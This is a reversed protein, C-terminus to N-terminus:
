NQRRRKKTQVVSASTPQISTSQWEMGSSSSPASYISQSAANEWIEPNYDQWHAEEEMKGKKNKPLDPDKKENKGHTKLEKEDKGHTKLEMADGEQDEASGEKSEFDKEEFFHYSEILGELGSFYSNGSAATRIANRVNDIEDYKQIINLLIQELDDEYDFLRVNRALELPIIGHNNATNVESGLFILFDLLQLHDSQTGHEVDSPSKNFSLLRIEQLALHILRNGSADIPMNILSYQDIETLLSTQNILNNILKIKSSLDKEKDLYIKKLSGCFQYLVELLATTINSREDDAIYSEAAALPTEENEEDEDEGEDEDDGENNHCIVHINAGLEVLARIAEYRGAYAAVYVPTMTGRCYDNVDILEDEEGNIVLTALLNIAEINGYKAACYMANGGACEAKRNAGNRLLIELSEASDNTAAFYIPTPSGRSAGANVDAGREILLSVMGDLNYLAALHIAQQSEHNKSNIRAGLDLLHNLLVFDGKKVAIHLPIEDSNKDGNKFNNLIERKEESNYNQLLFDVKSVKDLEDSRLLKILDRFVVNKEEQNM